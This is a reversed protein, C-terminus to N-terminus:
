NFICLAICVASIFKQNSNMFTFLDIKHLFFQLTIKNIFKIQWIASRNSNQCAYFVQSHCATTKVMCKLDQTYLKNHQKIEYYQKEAYSNDELIVMLITKWKQFVKRPKDLTSLLCVDFKTLCCNAFTEPQFIKTRHTRFNMSSLWQIVEFKFSWQDCGTDRQFYKQYMKCSM